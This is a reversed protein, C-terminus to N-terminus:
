QLLADISLSASFRAPGLEALDVFGVVAELPYADGNPARGV